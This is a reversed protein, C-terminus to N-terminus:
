PSDFRFLRFNNANSNGHGGNGHGGHGHGGHGSGSGSGSGGSGDNGGCNGGGQSTCGSRVFVHSITKGNSAVNFTNANVNGFVRRSCDTYVVVVRRINKCASLSVSNCGQFTTTVRSRCGQCSGQSSTTSAVPCTEYCDDIVFASGAGAPDYAYLTRDSGPMPLGFLDLKVVQFRIAWDFCGAPYQNAPLPLDISIQNLYPNVLSSSWNNNPVPVNGTMVIQGTSAVVVQYDTMFWGASLVADLNLNVDPSGTNTYKGYTITGWTGPNTGCPVPGFGDVCFNVDMNGTGEALAIERVPGCNTGSIAGHVAPGDIDSATSLQERQCSWLLPVFLAAACLTRLFNKKM